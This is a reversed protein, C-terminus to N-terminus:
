KGDILESGMESDKNKKQFFRKSHIYKIFSLIIMIESSTRLTPLVEKLLEKSVCYSDRRKM